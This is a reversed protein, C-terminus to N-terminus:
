TDQQQCYGTQRQFSAPLPKGNVLMDGTVVGMDVRQALVNLLTTKGAGSEGMLATMRGPVVYGSVDSLLRRPEGKIQIDYNVNRWTFIDTAARLTDAAKNKEEETAEHVAEPNETQNEEDRKVGPTEIANVLEPPAHGRKFIMVGGSVGEDKQYETAILAIALFFIYYAWIFGFNRWTHSWKYGYQALLYASGSVLNTGPIGGATACAQNAATLGAYAAGQPVLQVCPVNLTRVTM